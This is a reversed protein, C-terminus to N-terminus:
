KVGLLKHIQVQFAIETFKLIKQLAIVEEVYKKLKGRVVLNYSPSFVWEVGMAVNLHNGEVVTKALNFTEDDWFVFKVIDGSNLKKLNLINFYKLNEQLKCDLVITVSRGLPFEPVLVFGNTEVVYTKRVAKILEIIGESQLLPEGGTILVDKIKSSEVVQILKEVSMEYKTECDTDCYPCRLNCEAFRVLLCPKGQYPVEGHVTETIEVMKM